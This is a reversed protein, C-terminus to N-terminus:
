AFFYPSHLVQFLDLEGREPPEDLTIGTEAMWDDRYETLIDTMTYMHVFTYRLAAALKSVDCAHTGFSDHVMNFSTVGRKLADCVTDMLHSADLSHVFNPPMCRRQRHVSIKGDDNAARIHIRQLLTYIATQRYELAEQVVPFGCPTTWRLAHGQKATASAIGKLWGMVSQASLVTEELAKWTLDRLYVACSRPKVMGKTHGDTVFQSAMGELTVGYPLTMTARKVTYRDIRGHWQHCPHPTPWYTAKGRSDTGSRIAADIPIRQRDEDVLAIVRQAVQDYVDSPIDSALLNVAAAAVPDLCMAAFHQLGNCTGDMNVPLYSIFDDGDAESLEIITALAQWPDDADAWWKHGLPDEASRIVLQMREDAWQERQDYSLKDQGFHNALKIKLWRMGDDGLPKGYSFELLGRAVDDSQPHLDGAVPYMRGRYDFQWPFFFEEQDVYAAATRMKNLTAKRKAITRANNDYVMRAKVKYETRAEENEDIDEPKAPLPKPNKSPLGAWDGGAKWVQAMVDYVRRNVRWGTDQVANIATFVKPGPTPHDVPSDTLNQPKVLPYRHYLFGGKADPAWRNPPRVMPLYYPRLIECNSHQEELEERVQGQMVLKTMRQPRGWRKRTFRVYDFLDCNDLVIEALKAGVWYRTRLPWPREVLAVKKRMYSVQRATWNKIKRSVVDYLKRHDTKLKEFQYEQEVYSGLTKAITEMTTEPRDAFNMLSVTAIVALKEAPLCWLPYGWHAMGPGATKDLVSERAEVIAPIISDLASGM